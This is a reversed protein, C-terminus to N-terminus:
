KPKSAVKAARVVGLDLHWLLHAQQLGPNHCPAELTSQNGDLDLHWLHAQQQLDLKYSSPDM